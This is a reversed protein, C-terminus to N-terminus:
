AGYRSQGAPAALAALVLTAFVVTRNFFRLNGKVLRVVSHGEQLGASTFLRLLVLVLSVLM